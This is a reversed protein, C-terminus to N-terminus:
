ETAYRIMASPDTEDTSDRLRKAPRRPLGLMPVAAAEVAAGLSLASPAEREVSSPGGGAVPSTVVSPGRAAREERLKKEEERWWPVYDDISVGLFECTNLALLKAKTDDAMTPHHAIMEGPHWEGLPFPYDSGLCVRDEGVVELVLDLARTDHLLSDVWFRACRASQLVATKRSHTQMRGRAHFLADCARCLDTGCEVCTIDVLDIECKPCVTRRPDRVFKMPSESCDTACLDPRCRFGHEIRGVTFPFSGGGHAFCMRLKPFRDLLGAFLVHCIARATEAPMGVLWPLWYQNGIEKQGMMDWPHVFVAAGLAECAEWLPYLRPDSLEMDECHTGIQVGRMGLPGMCRRLEEVAADPFQLPLTGLGIFKKPEGAVVAAIDDNLYRALRVSDERSKSWYSFMVPVTSLVQVDCRGGGEEWDQMDAVRAKADYCNCKIQRFLKGDKMMNARDPRAHELTVYNAGKDGLEKCIDLNRPLIHTHVDIRPFRRNPRRGPGSTPRDFNAENQWLVAKSHVDVVKKFYRMPLYGNTHYGRTMLAPQSSDQQFRIGDREALERDVYILIAPQEVNPIVGRETEETCRALQIGERGMTQLGKPDCQIGVWNDYSTAHVLLSDSHQLDSYSQLASDDRQLMEHKEHATHTRGRAEVFEGEPNNRHAM